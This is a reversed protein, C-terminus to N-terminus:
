EATEPHPEYPREAPETKVKTDNSEYPAKPYVIEIIAQTVISNHESASLRIYVHMTLKLFQVMGAKNGFDGFDIGYQPM